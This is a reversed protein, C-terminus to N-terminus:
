AGIDYNYTQSVPRVNVAIFQSCEGDRSFEVEVSRNMVSGRERTPVEDLYFIWETGSGTETIIGIGDQRSIQTIFGRKMNEM